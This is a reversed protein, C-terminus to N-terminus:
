AAEVDTRAFKEGKFLLREGTEEVIMTEYREADLECCLLAIVSSNNIIVKPSFRKAANSIRRYPM